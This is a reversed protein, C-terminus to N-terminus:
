HSAGVAPPSVSVTLEGADGAPPPVSVAMRLVTSTLGSGFAALLHCYNKPEAALQWPSPGIDVGEPKELTAYTGLVALKLLLCRWSAPPDVGASPVLVTM